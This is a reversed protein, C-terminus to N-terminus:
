FASILISRQMLNGFAERASQVHQIPINWNGGRPACGRSNNNLTLLEPGYQFELSKHPRLWYLSSIILFPCTCLARWSCLIRSLAASHQKSKTVGRSACSEFPSRARNNHHTQLLFEQGGGTSENFSCGRLQRRPRSLQEIFLCLAQHSFPPAAWSVILSSQHHM